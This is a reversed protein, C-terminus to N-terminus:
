PSANRPRRALLAAVAAVSALKVVEVYPVSAAGDQPTVAQLRDLVLAAASAVDEAARQLPAATGQMLSCGLTPLLLVSLVFATPKM